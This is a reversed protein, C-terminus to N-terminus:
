DVPNPAKRAPDARTFGLSREPSTSAPARGMGVWLPPCAVCLSVHWGSFANM